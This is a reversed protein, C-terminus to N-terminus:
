IQQRAFLMLHHCASCRDAEIAFRAKGYKKAGGFLGRQLPGPIWRAYGQSAEGADEVFGPEFSEGGCAPCTRTRRAPAPDRDSNSDAGYQEYTTM